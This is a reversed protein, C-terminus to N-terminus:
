RLLAPDRVPLALALGNGELPVPANGLTRAVVYPMLALESAVFTVTGLAPSARAAAVTVGFAAAHVLFGYVYARAGRDGPAGALRAGWIALAPPLFVLGIAAGAVAADGASAQGGLESTGAFGLAIVGLMLADGAVVLGSAAAWEGARFGRPAAADPSDEGALAGPGQSQSRALVTAAHLDPGGSAAAVLNVALVLALM